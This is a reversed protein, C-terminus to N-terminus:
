SPVPPDADLSPYWGRVVEPVQQGVQWSAQSHKALSLPTELMRLHASLIGLLLPFSTRPLVRSSHGHVAVVPM